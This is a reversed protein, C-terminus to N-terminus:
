RFASSRCFPAVAGQSGMLPCAVPEPLNEACGLPGLHLFFVAKVAPGVAVVVCLITFRSRPLAEACLVFRASFIEKLRFVLREGLRGEVPLHGLDVEAGLVRIAQVHDKLVADQGALNLLSAEIGQISSANLGDRQPDNGDSIRCGHYLRISLSRIKQKMSALIQDLESSDFVPELGSCDWYACELKAARLRKEVTRPNELAAEVIELWTEPRDFEITPPEAM